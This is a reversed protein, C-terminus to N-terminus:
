AAKPGKLTAMKDSLLKNLGGSFHLRLADEILRTQPIGLLDSRRVLERFVDADLRYARLIKRPKTKM